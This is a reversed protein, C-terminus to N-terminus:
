RVESSYGAQQVPPSTRSEATTTSARDIQAILDAAPQLSVDHELARRFHERAQEAKGQQMLVTGLNSYAAAPGAVESFAVFSEEMRGQVALSIGLNNAARQHTPQLALARRFWTEAEVGRSRHLHYVGFDNLLDPDDPSQALAQAYAAQARPDDGQQDYLMALHRSLHAAGPDLTRAQEYLRIAEDINGQREASEGARETLRVQHAALTSADVPPSKKWSLPGDPSVSTCGCCASSGIALM